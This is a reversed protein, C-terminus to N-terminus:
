FQPHFKIALKCIFAYSVSFFGHANTADPTHCPPQCMKELELFTLCSNCCCFCLGYVNLILLPKQLVPCTACNLMAGVPKWCKCRFKPVISLGFSQKREGQWLLNSALRLFQMNSYNGWDNFFFFYNSSYLWRFAFPVSLSGLGKYNIYTHLLLRCWTRFAM